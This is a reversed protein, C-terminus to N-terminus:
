KRASKAREWTARVIYSTGRKSVLEVKIGAQPDSYSAVKRPRMDYTADYLIGCREIM